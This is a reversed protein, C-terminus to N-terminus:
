RSSAMFPASSCYWPRQWPSGPVDSRARSPDTAVARPDSAGRGSVGPGKPPDDAEGATGRLDDLSIEEVKLDEQPKEEDMLEM